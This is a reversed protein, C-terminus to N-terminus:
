GYRAEGSLRRIEQANGEFFAMGAESESSKVFDFSTASLTRQNAWQSYSVTRSTEETRTTRASTKGAVPYQFGQAGYASQEVHAPMPLAEHYPSMETQAQMSPSAQPSTKIRQAVTDSATSSPAKRKRSTTKKQADLAAVEPSALGSGTDEKHDHVRKM